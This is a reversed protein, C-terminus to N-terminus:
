GSPLGATSSGAAAPRQPVRVDVIQAGRSSPDALVRAAAAWKASLRSADGLRLVQGARFAVRVGDKAGYARALLRRLGNPAGSLASVLRRASREELTGSTPIADIKVVPLKTGRKVGRLVTHASSVAVRRGGPTLLAAVPVYENVKIRLTSPFDGSASLSRVVPFSDVAQRLEAERVHLTTMREGTQRLARRIAPAERSNLGSIEVHRVRLLSLDRAWLYGSWGIAVLAVTLCLFWIRRM